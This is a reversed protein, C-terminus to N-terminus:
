ITGRFTDCRNMDGTQLGTTFWQQRQKSSGHTWGETNIKGQFRKQIYDDGVIRAADLGDQVDQDTLGKIFGTQQAHNAWVGAYCDAQLELRVSASQPGTRDGSQDVEATKGLLDQVHHGYEHAVVYAETFATDRGGFKSELEQFFGLDLYVYQDAPCYFPGMESSAAGCGTSVQGTFPRTKAPQYQLNQRPFEETWYAQVSNVVGVLRCIQTKNADAGTKCASLDAGQTNSEAQAPVQNNGPLLQGATSGGGGGLGRLLLTLILGIIGLGGGVGAVRGGGGGFSSGGGGGRQDDIQSTDLQVNDDFEM